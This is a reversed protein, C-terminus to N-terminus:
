GCAAAATGLRRDASASREGSQMAARRLQLDDSCRCAPADFRRTRGSLLQLGDYAVPRFGDAEVRLVYEQATSLAPIRYFGDEGTRALSQGGRKAVLTVAAGAIPRGRADEVTGDLAASGVAPVATPALLMLLAAGALIPRLRGHSM